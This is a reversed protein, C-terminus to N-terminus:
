KATVSRRKSYLPKEERDFSTTHFQRLESQQTLVGTNVSINVNEKRVCNMKLFLRKEERDFSTTHLLCLQQTLV